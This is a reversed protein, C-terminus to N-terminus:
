KKDGRLYQIVRIVLENFENESISYIDGKGLLFQRLMKSMADTPTNEFLTLLVHARSQKNM